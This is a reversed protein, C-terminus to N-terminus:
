AGVEADELGALARLHAEFAPYSTRTCGWGTVTTEEPGAALGAVAAAMAMRHDGASDYRAGHLRGVGTVVLDDGDAEAMGGFARVLALVGAFRDSEKVRLEGMARFTTVGEAVAAAVALVPVEDLGTVESADVDTGQLPASRVHVDFVHPMSSAEDPMEVMDAGMRELVDLYGRRQPGAYVGEVVVDSGSV